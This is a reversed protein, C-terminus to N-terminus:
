IQSWYVMFHDYDEQINPMSNLMAEITNLSFANDDYFDDIFASM